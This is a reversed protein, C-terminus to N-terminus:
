IGYVYLGIRKKYEVSLDITQFPIGLKEAILMADNSDQLWPCENSITVSEDYWNKM